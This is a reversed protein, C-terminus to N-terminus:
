AVRENKLNRRLNALARTQLSFVASQSRGIAEAVQRSSLDEFFRLIIVRRQDPALNRIAKELDIAAPLEEPGVTTIAQPQMAARASLGEAKLRDFMINHEIRYLWALVPKGTYTYSRISRMAEVFVEATIDEAEKVHRLRVFAYRFLRTYFRQYWLGWISADGAKARAVELGDTDASVASSKNTLSQQIM